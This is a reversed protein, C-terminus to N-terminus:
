LTLNCLKQIERYSRNATVPCLCQLFFKTADEYGGEHPSKQTQLMHHGVAYIANYVGTYLVKRPTSLPVVLVRCLERFLSKM